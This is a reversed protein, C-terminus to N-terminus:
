RWRGENARVIMTLQFAQPLWASYEGVGRQGVATCEIRLVRELPHTLEITHLLLDRSPLRWQSTTRGKPERTAANPDFEFGPLQLVVKPTSGPAAFPVNFKEGKTLSQFNILATALHDGWESGKMVNAYM